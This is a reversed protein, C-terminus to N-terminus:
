SAGGLAAIARTAEDADDFPLVEGAVTQGSEHGKGAIVLVDGSKLSGIATVIADRRDGVEIAGPAAAMIESRIVAPDESRPNDDTVYAVDAIRSAM